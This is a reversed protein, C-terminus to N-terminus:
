LLRRTNSYGGLYYRLTAKSTCVIPERRDVLDVVLKRDETNMTEWDRANYEETFPCELLLDRQLLWASTDVDRVPDNVGLPDARDRFVNSFPVRVGKRVLDEYTARSAHPDEEWPHAPATFPRGDPHFVRVWSHVARCSAARACRLLSELHAPEYENDDDLFSIWKSTRVHQVCRNRLVASRAPGSRVGPGRREFTWSVPSAAFQAVM